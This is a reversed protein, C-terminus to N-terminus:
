STIQEVLTLQDITSTFDEPLPAIFQSLKTDGPLAIHLQEAHLLQRKVNLLNSVIQSQKNNYFDDGLVPCGIKSSQVRIQHTRGTKISFEILSIKENNFTFYKLVEYDSIAEKGNEKGIDAIHKRNYPHRGLYNILTASPLKPWNYCLALYKKKVTRNQIQKSLSHMTRSNKAVIIVGSTDKDLRHVLGPRNESVPNGKEYVASTIKPFYHILANVLTGTKNGAAPHVVMGPQKNIVIVDKNEFIIDLKIDEGLIEPNIIETDFNISINDDCSLKYSSKISKSNVLVNGDKIQSSIFSRSLDPYQSSLYKDIREEEHDNTIKLTKM